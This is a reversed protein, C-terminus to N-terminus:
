KPFLLQFQLRLQWDPAFEPKEVNYYASVQANVPQKGIKVIKGIGGGFPVTWTNGSDAEWNATITPASTM